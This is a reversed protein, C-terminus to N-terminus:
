IPRLQAFIRQRDSGRLESELVIGVPRKLRDALEIEAGVLDLLSLGDRKEALLDIADEDFVHAAAGRPLLGLFRLAFKAEIEKLNKVLEKPAIAPPRVPVIEVNFDPRKGIALPFFGEDDQWKVNLNIRPEIKQPGRYHNDQRLKATIGESIGDALILIKRMERSSMFIGLAHYLKSLITGSEELHALWEERYRDRASMPLKAVAREVLWTALRHLLQILETM